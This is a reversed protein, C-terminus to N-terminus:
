CRPLEILDRAAEVAANQGLVNSYRTPPVSRQAAQDAPADPAAAGTLDFGLQIHAEDRALRRARHFALYVFREASVIAPMIRLHRQISIPRVNDKAPNAQPRVANSSSGAPAGPVM